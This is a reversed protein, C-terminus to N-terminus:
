FERIKGTLGMSIFAFQGGVTEKKLRACHGMEHRTYNSHLMGLNSQRYYYQIPHSSCFCVISLSTTFSFYFKIIWSQKSSDRYDIICYRPFNTDLLQTDIVICTSSCNILVIHCTCVFVIERVIKQHRTTKLKHSHAIKQWNHRNIFAFSM